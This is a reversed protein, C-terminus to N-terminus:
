TVRTGTITTDNSVNKESFHGSVMFTVPFQLNFCVAAEKQRHLQSMKALSNHLLMKCAQWKIRM